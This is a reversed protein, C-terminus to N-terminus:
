TLYTWQSIANKEFRKINIWVLLLKITVNTADLIRRINITNKKIFFNQGM